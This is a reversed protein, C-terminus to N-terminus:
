IEENKKYLSKALKLIQKTWKEKYYALLSKLIPFASFLLGIGLISIIAGPLISNWELLCTLGIGFVIMALGIAGIYFVKPVIRIKLDLARIKNVVITSSNMPEYERKIKEIWRREEPTPASYLIKFKDAM